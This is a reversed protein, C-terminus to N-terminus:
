ILCLERLALRLDEPMLGIAPTAALDSPKAEEALYRWGQFPRCPRSLVPVLVPELVLQCRPVGDDGVVPRAATLRQRAAVHGRVVWYLSGGALVEDVRKPTVRTMHVQEPPQGGIRCMELCAVIRAELDALSDIGVCLKLLHLAM